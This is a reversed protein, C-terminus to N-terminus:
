PKTKHPVGDGLLISLSKLSETRDAILKAISAFPIFLIMGAAGWLIGGATIMIIIVLTNIKLRSGVAFPFIVYAELIQVISFVIIVGLPYWISNFTIWSVAIPLLSSILIGIYPIFTLVSAIFGFLIPHPVGVIALGISNLAGVILYVVLMGKIFNYYAHITETLIERIIEKREAPFIRYLVNALIQRHFLILASFVPIILLYFFTESFLFAANRLFSLAQSGSNNISSKFFALQEETSIEFRQAIYISIQNLTELLKKKFPEWENSFENIQTFLLYFLIGVLIFMFSLSILIALTKTIGKKEMWKCVPFLIFSILLSFSLPIFLTKGFYLVFSLLVIFQLIELASYNANPSIPNTSKSILKM